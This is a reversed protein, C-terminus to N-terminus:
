TYLPSADAAAADAVGLLWARAEPLSRFSKHIAGSFRSVQCTVIILLATTAHTYSELMRKSKDTSTRQGNTIHREFWAGTRADFSKRRVEEWTTYIQTGGRGNHVAYFKQKTM